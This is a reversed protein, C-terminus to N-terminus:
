IEYKNSSTWAPQTQNRYSVGTMRKRWKSVKDTEDFAFDIVLATDIGSSITYTVYDADARSPRGILKYLEERSMGIIQKDRFLKMLDLQHDWNETWVEPSFFHPESVTVLFLNKGPSVNDFTPRIAWAGTKDILGCKRDGQSDRVYAAAVEDKFVSVAVFKPQIAIKGNRDMFGWLPAIPKPHDLGASKDVIAKAIPNEASIAVAILPGDSIRVDVVDSPFFLSMLGSRNFLAFRKNSQALFGGPVAEIKDYECPVIVKNNDDVIGVLQKQGSSVHTLFANNIGSPFETMADLVPQKAKGQANILESGYDVSTLGHPLARADSYQCPIVLEAKFNIFGIKGNPGRMPVIGGSFQSRGCVTYENTSGTINGKEDYVFLTRDKRAIFHGEAIDGVYDFEPKLVIKGTESLLGRKLGNECYFWVEPHKGSRKLAIAPAFGCSIQVGEPQPVLKQEGSPELIWVSCGPGPKIPFSYVFRDEAVEEIM